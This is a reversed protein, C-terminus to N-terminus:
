NASTWLVDALSDDYARVEAALGKDSLYIMITNTATSDPISFQPPDTASVELSAVGFGKNDDPVLQQTTSKDLKSIYQPILKANVVAGDSVTVDSTKPYAGYDLQYRDLAAKLEHATAVDAQRRARVTSTVLKPISIAALVAVIIVVAMVEILTFGNEKTSCSM